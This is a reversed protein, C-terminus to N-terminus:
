GRRRFHGKRKFQVFRYGVTLQLSRNKPFLADDNRLNPTMASYLRLDLDVGSALDVGTGLVFGMDMPEYMEKVDEYGSPDTRKAAVLKSFQYGGAFYFTNSLFVKLSIPVQLYLTRDTYEDGDTEVFRSGLASIGFEPQIELRPGIGIPAHIGLTGGSISRTNIHIAKVTSMLVGGHIGLGASQAFSAAGIALSLILM